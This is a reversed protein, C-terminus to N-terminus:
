LIIGGAHFKIGLQDRQGVVFKMWIKLYDKREYKGNNRCTVLEVMKM